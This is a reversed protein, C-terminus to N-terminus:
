ACSPANSGVISFMSVDSIWNHKKEFYTDITKGQKPYANALQKGLFSSREQGRKV